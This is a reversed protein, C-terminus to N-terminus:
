RILNVTGRKTIVQGGYIVVRAVYIYVGVPQDHGNYTGDWGQEHDHTEWLQQGWQNFVRLDIEQISSGYARFVDNLGDRNPTFANPIFLSKPNPTVNVVVVATDVCGWTDKGTVKFLQSTDSIVFTQSTASDDGFQASPWWSVVTFASDSSSTLTVDYGAEVPDPNGTLKLSHDIVRVQLVATDSCGSNNSTTVTYNTTADPTVVVTDATTNLGQWHMTNGLANAHLSASSGKCIISDGGYILTPKSGIVATVAQPLSACSTSNAGKIYYISSTTIENPNTVTITGAQNAYYSFTLGADSGSTIATDTLDITGPMCVPAPNTIVVNPAPSVTVTASTNGICTGSNFTYTVTYTGPTSASVNIAGTRYDLSLGPTSSYFGGTQGTLNVAATGAGCYPSNPYAIAATTPSVIISINTTTMNSCQGDSFTYTVTYTGPTTANLNVGGTAPDLALGSTSSYTGGTTGTQTVTAQGITCYISNAYYVSPAYSITALPLANITVTTSVTNTCTGNSFTYNVAYVGGTCASLNIKGTLLDLALGSTSSFLGGTQGTIVVAATGTACYPSAPYSISAVPLPIITLTATTTSANTCNGNTFSYTVTYNGPTSAGLDITGTAPDIVVGPTSSFVGGTQGTLVVNATGSACYTTTTSYPNYAYSISASALAVVTVQTTTSNACSGNSFNYTVTYNGPASSGLDILGTTANIMLGAPASFVGGTQGALSVAATGTACYPTGPYSISATAASALITISTTTTSSCTGNSFTYTVTYTGATSAALNVEGTAADISLGAPASFVGGTQGVLNVATTGVKCFPQSAYYPGPSYSISATPLANVTVNTTTTNNCSGNSFTYTVTYTGATSGGLNLVGTTANIVLGAPASYTGGAQGTRTPTASGAACFAPHAYAITATPLANVTVATTTTNSCTGNSFTYTVTYTGATSNALNINGTSHNLMLGATSSYLGGTAGTVTAFAMGTKCYPSGSYVITATPLANVTISATTTNSCTGNTFTYAVTYTGATSAALNVAGTSANLSLGPAATYSGGATGTQAVSASGVACYPSGTYAITAVPPASVVITGNAVGATGCPASTFAYSVTYTGPTSGALNVAGTSADIVLGAPASFAGGAQGSLTVTATGSPCYPSGMYAISATSSSNVMISTTAVNNCTGNGFTYTVTYSGPTSTSLDVDGTTANIHLGADSSYFGGTQGTQTVTATGSACYPTGGYAITAAPLANVTIDTTATNACSGNGFSYTVTYTGATSASLNVTGSGADIVLGSAASFSGGTQGTIVPTATGSACYPSGSYAITATPLANVTVNTTTSNACSGNSFAYTVTYTGPTSAGLDIVGTGADIVLGTGASYSGGGQGTVTPVAAGATCYPGGAYSITATPPANMTVTVPEIDSCGSALVGKIYYTGPNVVANPNTLPNTGAADKFYFFTLGSTSGATVAAATLDITAPMCVPAPNTIVVTPANIIQIAATTTNGCVGNTFAYSVVYNGPTSAGLNVTGTGGDIVLGASSSFVGGTQGTLTVGATGSACYPSGAYSITATPPTKITVTVPKTLSCGNANTGQIYYTGSATVANPNSLPMTAAADTFYGYTLGADSGATVAPDTLDVTTPACVAAPNTIVMYPRAVITVSCTTSNSCTGNGFTYTVTYTGPTSASLNISGTSANINLGATSGFSGSGTGTLTVTASGSGCYPSGAYSITATPLPNITVTTTATNSCTGNSFSYTVTYTGPTSSSLDITGTSPDITLGSPSSSYTGGGQGTQVVTASGSICYPSGPYSITATPLANVNVTVPQIATCGGANTAQIYYTGSVAVANPNSLAHTAAADTFYAFTLGSSSGATVSGATLDVTTPACVGAPNTIVLSPLANITISATTSSGCAGSGFNYTVTYTGPTSSSLNVAGSAADIVLGAAASYAGGAQGSQTVTATGTACYPSGAYSITATPNPNLITIPATTFNSCGGNSFTYTVTYTGPTSSAIDVTGSAPDVVLGATSSFSGGTQGTQTVVATGTACYPSGPYSITATPTPNITVTTTATSSVSCTGNMFSYTVTYTGAPSAALNVTGTTHNIVLGPDATYTGGTQGTQMVTATGTACYPQGAYSISATPMANITISTTTTNSCTGNSFTYTVTYTGPASVGLDIVGSSANISLGVPGGYTGGGQGTVTPAATGSNCYPSGSYAITAAPLAQIAITTTTTNSCVGNSFSYTVTYTGVTSAALNVAGTGADISLGASSSYTGGAQGTQTVTATGSVCYPSGSYAITATPQANITVNVPAVTSCSGSNTGQIYYTGSAAVATPNSLANTAAADTYYGFALGSSSGATVAAATLDVTGPACVAAPNTIVLTPPAVVDITTTATASCTGNTFSYTVTYMGPTSTALNVNGTVADLGLGATSSYTGGGQGSQVMTATGTACYPAGTYAITATPLANITVTTTTSSSCPGNSFNYTVTYTGATSTASNIIGTGNDIVLGATASYSGGGQGIVTPAATGTACYPSGAYSITATPLAQVTVSATTTNPCSGDTFSYTVTYSGPTSAGLDITGTAPDIVLGTGATYTGGGQGTQTVAATGTQCFVGPAYYPNPTYSIAASALARVTVSATTTNNCTGNSFSYTVTYTGPVTAALDIAGTAPTISLGPSSSYTGGNQGSQTPVAVGKACYPSAPYVIAAIPLANVTVNTTTTSSNSCAGNPFTYTVAYTGPVSNVLDIAGSAPDITLGAPASYVGGGAGTQTVVGTGVACFPNGNYTISASAVTSLITISATTSNSCTGNNFTYTVTYTGPVSTALNVNGTTPDLALNSSASFTGGLQGSVTATATGTACYPSGTYAISATPLPNVTVTTTTTNNCTGNTFSYTITYTGPTSAALNIVGSGADITLGATSSWTGGTQGNLTPAATGAACFIAASYPNAAYTITANPLGNITVAATTTNNCTGNTFTYTVTYNGPTSGALDITGTAANINLGPTSSYTGGGQGTQTPNATGTGCYPSGNYSITAQPLAVISMNASTTSNCTGNTLYYNVTYSGPTSAVLNINGTSPDIVLGSTSSFVGGTQGTLTVTATGSQCFVSSAFYSSPAYSITAKPSANVVVNTSATQSCSGNSFNYNVTYTGPTSAGLDITGSSPDLALGTTSSYTGGTQGTQNVTATGDACYPSGPYSITALVNDSLCIDFTGANITHQNDIEIYYTAGPTLGSVGLCGDFAPATNADECALVNHSADLIAVMEHTLTEGVGSVLTKVTIAGNATATFKFWVNNHPGSSWCAPKALDPTAGITTYTGGASCSANIKATVDLASAFNDNGPAFGAPLDTRVPDGSKSVTDIAAEGGGIGVPTAKVVLSAVTLLVIAVLTTPYLNKM